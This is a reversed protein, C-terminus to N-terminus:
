STSEPGGDVIALMLTGADHSGFHLTTTVTAPRGSADRASGQNASYRPFAGGSVQLRIRHGRSFRHATGQMEITLVERGSTAGGFDSARRRVIEDTVNRSRGKRDVDCLRVFVDHETDSSEIDLVVTPHGIVVLDDILEESTFVLVDDRAEVDNNVKVGADTAMTHGGISPTPSAPDFVFHAVGEPALQRSLAKDPQLFYTTVTAAPPWQEISRWEKKGGVVQVEYNSEAAVPTGGALLRDIWSLVRNSYSSGLMKGMDVHTWGEVVVELDEGNADLTRWQELTQRLFLDQWGGSLLVPCTVNHLADVYRYGEWFEDQIDPHALWETYWAADKPFRDPIARELPKTRLLEHVHKEDRKMEQMQAFMGKRSDNRKSMMNSWGIFNELDFEGRGWAIEAFDHPGVDVVMGILESPPDEALAWQAFGLYSQGFTILRGDFWPQLRLWVLTDQADAAETVM